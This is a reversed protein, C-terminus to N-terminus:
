ALYQFPNDVCREFVEYLRQNSVQFEKYLKEVLKSLNELNNQVWYTRQGETPFIGFWKGEEKIISCADSSIAIGSVM